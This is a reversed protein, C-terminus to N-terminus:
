PMAWGGDSSSSFEPSSCLSSTSWTARRCNRRMADTPESVGSRPACKVAELFASRDWADAVLTPDPAEELLEGDLSAHALALYSGARYDFLKRKGQRLRDNSGRRIWWQAGLGGYDHFNIAM